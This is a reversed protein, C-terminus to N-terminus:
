FPSFIVKIIKFTEMKNKPKLSANVKSEELHYGTFNNQYSTFTTGGNETNKPLSTDTDKNGVVHPSPAKQQGILLKEEAKPSKVTLIQESLKQDSQVLPLNVYIESNLPNNVVAPKIFGFQFVQPPSQNKQLTEKLRNANKGSSPNLDDALSTRKEKQQENLVKKIHENPDVKLNQSHPTLNQRKVQYENPTSISSAKTSGSRKESQNVIETNITLSGYKGGKKIESERIKRDTAGPDQQGKEQFSPTKPFELQNQNSPTTQSRHSGQESKENIVSLPQIECKRETFESKDSPLKRPSCKNQPSTAFTRLGKPSLVASTIDKPSVIGTGINFNRPSVMVNPTVGESPTQQNASIQSSHSPNRQLGQCPFKFIDGTKDSVARTVLEQNNPSVLNSRFIKDNESLTDLQHSISKNPDDVTNGLKKLLSAM